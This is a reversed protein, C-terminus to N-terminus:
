KKFFIQTFYLNGDADPKISITTHTYEGEITNKHSTSALWGQLAGEADLYNRAVNESVSVANTAEAVKTARENFGDHSLKGKSIMYDNHARAYSYADKSFALGQLGVDTRYTNVLEHLEEEMAQIELDVTSLEPADLTPKVCSALTTLCLVILLLSTRM